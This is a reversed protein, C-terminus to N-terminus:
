QVMVIKHTIISEGSEARVLYLGSAVAKGQDDTGDWRLKLQPQDNTGEFLRRVRRGRVDYLVVRLKQAQPLDLVIMTEPNFPNPYNVINFQSQVIEEQANGLPLQVNLETVTDEFININPYTMPDCGHFEFRVTYSGPILPRIYRGFLENSRSPEVETMGTQGDIEEVYVDAVVPHGQSDTVVGTLTSKMAREIFMLAATLNDQSIQIMNDEDPFHTNALEITFGFIRQESYSWDGMSGQCTYGFDVAQIPTYTGTSSIRPITAAMDVALEDMIEHDYSCVGDLHGLPYLVYEGSSHYTIAGWFRRFRLLDRLYVTEPESWAEPGHYSEDSYVDSAHNNGWVYGFNRNLDVGDDSSYDPMQNNNNDRMNKRHWLELEEISLKHGDPNILPVFWIQNANVMQTIADDTGYNELIHRLVNMPVEVSILERAHIGGGIFANPEDEETEVNDSVKMCWIEHQFEIYNEMGQDYYMHCQSPGLSELRVIEPYQEAFQHLETTVDEYNHFYELERSLEERTRVDSLKYDSLYRMLADDALFQMHGSGSLVIFETDLLDLHRKLMPDPNTVTVFYDEALLAVSILLILILIRIRM